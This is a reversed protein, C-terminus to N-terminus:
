DVARAGSAYQDDGARFQLGLGSMASPHALDLTVIDDAGGTEFALTYFSM